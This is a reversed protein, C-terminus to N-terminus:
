KPQFTLDFWTRDVQVEQLEGNLYTYYNHEGNPLTLKYQHPKIEVLECNELYLESYIQHVEVPEHFYLMITTFHAPPDGISCQERPHRYCQYRDAGVYKLTTSDELEENMYVGAYTSLLREASRVTHNTTSRNYEKWLVSFNVDSIVRYAYKEGEKSLTARVEGINKKGWYIDFSKQQHPSENYQPFLYIYFLLTYLQPM